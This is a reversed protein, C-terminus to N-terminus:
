VNVGVRVTLLIARWRSATNRELLQRDNLTLFLPNRDGAYPYIYVGTAVGQEVYSVSTNIRSIRGQM